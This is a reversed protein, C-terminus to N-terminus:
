VQCASASVAARRTAAATWWGAIRALEEYTAARQSQEGALLTEIRAAAAAAMTETPVALSFPRGVQGLENSRSDSVLQQAALCRFAGWSEPGVRLVFAASESLASVLYLIVATNQIM